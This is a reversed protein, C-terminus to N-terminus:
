IKVMKINFFRFMICVVIIIRRIYFADDYRCVTVYDDVINIRIETTM